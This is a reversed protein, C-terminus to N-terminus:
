LRLLFSCSKLEVELGRLPAASSELTGTHSATYNWSCNGINSFVATGDDESGELVATIRRFTLFCEGFSVADCAM